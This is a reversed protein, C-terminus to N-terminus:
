YITNFVAMSFCKCGPQQQVHVNAVGVEWGGGGGFFFRRIQMLRLFIATAECHLSTILAISVSILAANPGHPQSLSNKLIIKYVSCWFRWLDIRKCQKILYAYETETVAICITARLTTSLGVTIPVKTL